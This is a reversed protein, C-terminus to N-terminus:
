VANKFWRVKWGSVIIADFRATALPARRLLWTEAARRLRASQSWTIAELGATANPRNKVEVFLILKGRRAIIDIEARGTRAGTTYRAELIKYGHLRLIQRAIWEAFLGARYTNKM